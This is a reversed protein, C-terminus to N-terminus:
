LKKLGIFGFGEEGNYTVAIKSNDQLIIFDILSLGTMKKTKKNNVNNNKNGNTNINNSNATIAMESNVIIQVTPKKNSYFGLSVQYIGGKIVTIITKDKEWIYNDPSTNVSQTDWPVAYGGKTKGTKWLWRGVQNENCIIDNILAQNNMANNFDINNVKLNMDKKINNLSHNIEEVSVKNRLSNNVENIDAKTLLENHMNDLNSNFTNLYDNFSQVDIKQKLEYDINNIYEKLNNFDNYSIKDKLLTIDAKNNLLQELDSINTKNNIEKTINESFNNMKQDIYQILEENLKKSNFLSVKSDIEKKINSIFSDFKQEDIKKNIKDNINITLKRIDDKIKQISSNNQISFNNVIDDLKNNINNIEEKENNIFDNISNNQINLENIISNYDQNWSENKDELKNEFMKINTLYDNKFSNITEFVENKFQSFYNNFKEEDLKNMLLNNMEEIDKSEVKKNDLNSILLNTSQFQAKINDILRDLDNDIDDIRQTLNIKMDQFADSILKFDNIDSKNKLIENINTTIEEKFLELEKKHVNNKLNENINLLDKKDVKNNLGEKIENIYGFVNESDAKLDLAEAVDELNAKNKMVNKLDAIESKQQTNGGIIKYINNQFNEFNNQLEEIKKRNNYFDNTSPKSNFYYMFEKKDIKEKLIENIQENTPRNELENSIKTLINSIELNDAKTNLIPNLENIGFKQRITRDMERLAIGQCHVTDALSKITVRIIESINGWESM